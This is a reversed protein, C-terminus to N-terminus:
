TARCNGPGCNDADVGPRTTRSAGTSYALRGRLDALPTEGDDAERRDNQGSQGADGDAAPAV